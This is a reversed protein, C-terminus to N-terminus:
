ARKKQEMQEYIKHANEAFNKAGKEKDVRVNIYERFQSEKSHGTIEMIVSTEMKQFWNTAFSRRLSHSTTIEHKPYIGLEKRGTEKNFKKGETPEIFGCIEVVKKMNENFKQISIQYPFDNEFVTIASPHILPVIVSKKTKSQHFKVYLTGNEDKRLLNQKDLALLDTGRQGIEFGLIMWKKANELSQNPMVTRRIIDIEDFSFTVIYRNEEDEKFSEMKTYSDNVEIGYEKADACITKLHDIQKGAYNVSYKKTTLLWNIFEDKFQKNINKFTIRKNIVAEYREMLSLFSKYKIITNPALGLESKNKVKKTPALEIYKKIHDVLYNSLGTSKDIKPSKGNFKDIKSQLWQKDVENGNELEVSLAKAVYNELDKLKLLLDKNEKSNEKPFGKLKNWNIPEVKRDTEAELIQERSVILRLKIGIKKESKQNKARHRFTIKCM